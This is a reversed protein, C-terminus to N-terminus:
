VPLREDGLELGCAEAEERVADAQEAPSRSLGPYQAYPGDLFLARDAIGALSRVLERLHAPREDYWCVTAILRM